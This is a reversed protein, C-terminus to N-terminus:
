KIEKILEGNEWIGHIVTNWFFGINTMRGEGHKKGNKWEGDYNDGNKWIYIGKGDKKNNKFEGKYIDGNKYKYIGKGEFKDDKFEGEYVDGSKFKYIGYGNSKGDKFEGEYVDGDHYFLSILIDGSTKYLYRGETRKGNKWYGIYM